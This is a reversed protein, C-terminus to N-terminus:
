KFRLVLTTLSNIDGAVLPNDKLIHAIMFGTLNVLCICTAWHAVIALGHALMINPSM